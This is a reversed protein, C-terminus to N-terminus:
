SPQEEAPPQFRGCVCLPVTCGVDNRHWNLTHQCAHCRSALLVATPSSPQEEAPTPRRDLDSVWAAVVAGVQILETRLNVPDSEALAEYVEELLVLAWEPGSHQAVFLEVDERAEDAMAVYHQAGTGDAHRQDGFKALQAQREADVDEAFRKVGPTTFGTPYM